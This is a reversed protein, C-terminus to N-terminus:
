QRGQDRKGRGRGGRPRQAGEPAAVSPAALRGFWQEVIYCSYAPPIADSIEAVTM